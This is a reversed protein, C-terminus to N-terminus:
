AMTISSYSCWAMNCGLTNLLGEPLTKESIPRTSVFGTKPNEPFTLSLGAHEAVSVQYSVKLFTLLLHAKTTRVGMFVPKRAGLCM